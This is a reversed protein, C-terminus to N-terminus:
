PIMMQIMERITLAAGAVDQGLGDIRGAVLGEPDIVSILNSHEFRDDSTHRFQVGLMTALERIASRSGTSFHWGPVNLQQQVAYEHLVEPTDNAPDFTVALVRVKERLPQGVEEYLRRADHILIPCVTTCNGYFMVVVIPSEEFDVLKFTDGRHDTWEADLHFLSHPPMELAEMARHDHDHEHNQAPAVIVIGSLLLMLVTIGHLKM